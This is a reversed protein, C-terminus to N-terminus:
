GGASDVPLLVDVDSVTIPGGSGRLRLCGNDDLEPDTGTVEGDAGVVRYERAFLAAAMWERRRLDWERGRLGELSRKLERELRDILDDRDETGASEELSAARDRIEDPLENGAFSLNIGIGAIVYEVAQDKTRAELLVGAVKRGRIMVDNPWKLALPLDKRSLARFVALSVLPSMRTLEGTRIQPRLLVSLYLNGPPSYWGRGRRGRGETQRDAVVATWEQAGADALRALYDNTSPLTQFRHVIM